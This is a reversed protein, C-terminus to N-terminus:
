FITNIFCSNDITGTDNNGSGSGPQTDTFSLITLGGKGDAVVTRTGLDNVAIDSANGITDYSWGSVARPSDPQSVDVTLVGGSGDAIYAYTKQDPNLITDSPKNVWVATADTTPFNAVIFPEAPKRIDIIQLGYAGDAVYAYNEWIDVGKADGPTDISGIINMDKPDKFYIIQLGGSGDAVYIYSEGERNLKHVLDKAAGPTDVTSEIVPPIRIYIKTTTKGEVTIEDKKSIRVSRVGNTGDAIFLFTNSPDDSDISQAQTLGAGTLTDTNLPERNELNKNDVNYVLLGNSGDAVFAYVHYALFDIRGDILEQEKFETVFVDQAEGPTTTFSQLQINSYESDAVSGAKSFKLIRLGEEAGNADLTYAYLNKDNTNSEMYLFFRQCNAPTDPQALLLSPATPTTVDIKTLGSARDALYVTSDNYLVSYANAFNSNFVGVIQPAAKDQINIIRLGSDVKALTKLPDPNVEILKLYSEIDVSGDAIYAYEGSVSISRANAPNQVAQPPSANDMVDTGDTYKMTGNYLLASKKSPINPDALWPGLNSIFLGSLGVASYGYIDQIEMDFAAQPIIWTYNNWFVGIPAAPNTINFGVMGNVIDVLFATNELVAIGRTDTFTVVSGPIDAASIRSMDGTGSVNILEIGSIANSNLIIKTYPVYATGNSVYVGRSIPMTLTRTNEDDSYESYANGKVVYNAPVANLNNVDIRYLGSHGSTVYLYDATADFYLGTIGESTGIAIDRNKYLTEKDYVRVINGMGLFVHDTDAAISKAADFPWRNTLSTKQEALVGACCGFFIVSFLLITKAKM